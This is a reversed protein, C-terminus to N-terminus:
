DGKRLKLSAKLGQGVGLHREGSKAGPRPGLGLDELTGAREEGRM